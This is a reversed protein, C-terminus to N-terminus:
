NNYLQKRCVTKMNLFFCLDCILKYEEPSVKAIGPNALVIEYIYCFGTAESNKAHHVGGAWNVAIDAQQKNLKVAGAVSGGTSLQCFEFLGDFVPCDEAVNLRQMQKSYESM